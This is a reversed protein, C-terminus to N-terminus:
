FQALPLDIDRRGQIVAPQFHEWRQEKKGEQRRAKMTNKKRLVLLRM